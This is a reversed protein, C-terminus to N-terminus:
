KFFFDVDKIKEYKKSHKKFRNEENNEPCNM